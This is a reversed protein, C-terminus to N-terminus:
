QSGLRLATQDQTSLLFQAAIMGSLIDPNLRLTQGIGCAGM